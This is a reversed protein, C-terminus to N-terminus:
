PPSYYVYGVGGRTANFLMRITYSMDAFTCMGRQCSAISTGYGHIKYVVEM